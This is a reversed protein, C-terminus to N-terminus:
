IHRWTKNNIINWITSQKVNYNKAICYMSIGTHSYKIEYVEAETVRSHKM